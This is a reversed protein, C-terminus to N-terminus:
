GLARAFLPFVDEHARKGVICDLHGYGPIVTRQYTEPGNKECVLEFTRRTAEPVFMNNFEGVFYSIPLKLGSLDHLEEPELALSRQARAAWQASSLFAMIVQPILEDMLDITMPTVQQVHLLDGFAASHRHLTKSKSKYSKPLLPALLTLILDGFQRTIQQPRFHMMTRKPIVKDVFTWQKFRGVRNYVLHLAVQSAIFHRIHAKDVHKRALSLHLASSSLCHALVSVQDAGTRARVESVAVPWDHRAVEALIYPSRSVALEPSTRWDFLWVDYGEAKLYEALNQDVSDLCFSLASMATGPALIVPGRPGDGPVHHLTLTAGDGARIEHRELGGFALPRRVGFLEHQRILTPQVQIATM